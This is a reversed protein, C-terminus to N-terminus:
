PTPMSKSWAIARVAAAPWVLDVFVERRAAVRHPHLAQVRRGARGAASRRQVVGRRGRVLLKAATSILLPVGGAITVTGSTVRVGCALACAASLARPKVEVTLLAVLAVTAAPETMLWVGLPPELARAPLATARTTDLPAGAGPGAACTVTDTSPAPGCVVGAKLVVVGPSTRTASTADSPGVEPAFLWFM